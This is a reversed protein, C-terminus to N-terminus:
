AAIAFGGPWPEWNTYTKVNYGHSEAFARASSYGARKRHEQIRLNM